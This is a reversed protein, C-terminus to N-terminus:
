KVLCLLHSVLDIFPTMSILVGTRELDNRQDLVKGSLMGDPCKTSNSLVIIFNIHFGFYFNELSPRVINGLTAKLDHNEQKLRRLAPIIPM